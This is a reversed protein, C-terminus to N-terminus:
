HIRVRFLALEVRFEPEVAVSYQGYMSGAGEPLLTRAERPFWYASIALELVFESRSAKVALSSCLSSVGLFEQVVQKM